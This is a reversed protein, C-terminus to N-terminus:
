KTIDIHLIPLGDSRCDPSEPDIGAAGPGIKPFWNATYIQYVSYGADESAVWFLYKFLRVQSGIRSYRGVDRCLSELRGRSNIYTQLHVRCRGLSFRGVFHKVYRGYTHQVQFTNLLPIRCTRHRLLVGIAYFQHRFVYRWFRWWHKLTFTSNETNCKNSNIVKKKDLDFQIWVLSPIQSTSVNTELFFGLNDVIPALIFYM